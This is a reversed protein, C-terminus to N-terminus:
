KGVSKGGVPVAGVPGEGGGVGVDEGDVNESEGVVVGDRKTVVFGAAEALRVLTAEKIVKTKGNSQYPFSRNSFGTDVVEEGPFVREGTLADAMNSHVIM